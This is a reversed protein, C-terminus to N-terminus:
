PFPLLHLSSTVVYLGRADIVRWMQGESKLVVLKTGKALLGAPSGGVTPEEYYFPQEEGLIHTFRTPAPTILNGAPIQMGADLVVAKPRKIGEMAAEM